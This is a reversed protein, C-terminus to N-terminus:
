WSPLTKWGPFPGIEMRYGTDSSEDPVIRLNTSARVRELIEEYSLTQFATGEPMPWLRITGDQSGSAIWKGDPSVAVSSIELTHGFLLHPEGGAVSGVRVVGDWDGTVLITGSPDFAATSVRNGHSTIQHFTRTELELVSLTAVRTVMGKDVVLVQQGARDIAMLPEEVASRCPRILESTGRDLDWVRIGQVGVTLLRSDPLFELDGVSGEYGEPHCGEEGPVLTDLTRVEGSQLDWIQLRSPFLRAAVVLRGDPSFTSSLIWGDGKALGPMPRPEGRGLSLLWARPDHPSAVLVNRGERDVELYPSLRATADEWLIRSQEGARAALPWLRVTGDNSSSILENGDPTFEIDIYPPSQGRLVRSRKQLLPWLIGFEANATVFWHGQPDFMSQNLWTVDGNRLVIPEADPPGKLDWLHAVDGTSRAGGPALVMWSDQPDLEAEPQPIPSQFRRELQGSERLFSWIRVEGREDNSVIRPATPHWMVWAVTTVHEGVLRTKEPSSDRLPSVYVGNGRGTLLWEGSADIDWDTVDSLDLATVDQDGEPLTWDRVGQRKESTTTFSFLHSGRRTFFTHGGLEASNLESGEPLSWFRVKKPGGAALLDSGPGFQVPSGRDPKGLTRPAGGVRAWLRVGSMVGGTALWQGDPSFDATNVNDSLVFAAAGHWLAEVAFRRAESSDTHELSALSYALAASPRDQLELRGLALLHAAEARLTEKRAQRWLSSTVAAVVLAAALLASRVIQKRRRRREALRTSADAFGQETQTLGGRYRERWLMLERHATGTWLLDEPRGRDQWAQAAQHLQDRLQAGDADQTQWRVLRPWASLLSEHIIEVSDEYSTLLRAGILERLVEDAAKRQEEKPFI